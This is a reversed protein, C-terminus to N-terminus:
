FSGVIDQIALVAPVRELLETKACFTADEKVM